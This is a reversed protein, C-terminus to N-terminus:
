LNTLSIIFDIKVQLVEHNHACAKSKEEELIFYISISKHTLKKRMHFQM